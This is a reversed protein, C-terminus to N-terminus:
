PQADWEHDSNAGASLSMQGDDEEPPMDPTELAIAIPPTKHKKVPAKRKIIKKKKSKKAPKKKTM